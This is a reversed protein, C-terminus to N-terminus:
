KSKKKYATEAITKLDNARLGVYHWDVKGHGKYYETLLDKIIRSLDVEFADVWRGDLLLKDGMKLLREEKFPCGPHQFTFGLENGVKVWYNVDMGTLWDKVVATRFDPSEVKAQFDALQAELETIRSASEVEAQAKEQPKVIDAVPDALKAESNALFGTRKGEHAYHMHNKLGSQRVEAGCIECNVYRIKKLKSM